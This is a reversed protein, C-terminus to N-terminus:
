VNNVDYPFVIWRDVDVLSAYFDPRVISKGEKFFMTAVKVRPGEPNYRDINNLCSRITQGSDAIDDVVLVRHDVTFIMDPDQYITEGARQNDKTYSAVGYSHIRPINLKYALYQAPVLGGRAIAVIDTFDEYKAMQVLYDCLELYREWTLILKEPEM